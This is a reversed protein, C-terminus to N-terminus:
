RSQLRNGGGLNLFPLTTKPRNKSSKQGFIGNPMESPVYQKERREQYHHHRDQHRKGGGRGATLTEKEEERRKIERFLSVNSYIPGSMEDDKCM